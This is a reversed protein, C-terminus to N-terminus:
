VWPFFLEFLFRAFFRYCVIFFSNYIRNTNQQTSSLSEVDSYCVVDDDNDDDKDRAVSM